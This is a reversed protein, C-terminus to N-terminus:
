VGGACCRLEWRQPWFSWVPEVKQAGPSNRTLPKKGVGPRRWLQGTTTQREQDPLFMEECLPCLTDCRHCTTCGAVPDSLERDGGGDITSANEGLDLHRILVNTVVSGGAEKCVQARSVERGWCGWGQALQAITALRTWDAAVDATAPPSLSTSVSAVACGSTSHKHSM